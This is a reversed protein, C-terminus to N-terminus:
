QVNKDYGGGGGWVFGWLMVLGMFAFVRAHPNSVRKM